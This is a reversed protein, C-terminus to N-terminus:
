AEVEKGVEEKEVLSARDGVNVEKGALSGILQAMRAGIYYSHGDKARSGADMLNAAMRFLENWEPYKKLLDGLKM